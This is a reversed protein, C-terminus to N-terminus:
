GGAKREERRAKFADVYHYAFYAAVTADGVATTIQRVMTDRVDGAAFVGPASTEMHDNTVIYGDRTGVCDGLWDTKPAHGIAIFVGQCEVVRDEGTKVNRVRASEVGEGGRVEVLTSDWLIEINPKQLAREELYKEARLRDRRHVIYVKQCIDSLFLADDVATNGGGVVVVTQGRFFFGDCTACYSVGRGALEVEGPVGLKRAQAGTAVIVAVAALDGQDTHLFWRGDPAPSLGMIEATVCEAGFRLAQEMVRQALDPGAIGEPFGPYNEIHSATATQGGPVGRELILTDLGYRRAYLAATCGGVGGGVVAVECDRLPL